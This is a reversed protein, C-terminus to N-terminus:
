CIIQLFFKGREGATTIELAYENNLDPLCSAMQQRKLLEILAKHDRNDMSLKIRLKEHEGFISRVRRMVDAPTTDLKNIFDAAGLEEARKKDAPDGRHSFFIVPITSRQPHAKMKEFLAFGDMRPMTIGTFIADLLAGSEMKEWADQGDVAAIADFGSERFVAAYINRLAEDDEVVMIRKKSSAAPTAAPTPPTEPRITKLTERIEKQFDDNQQLQADMHETYFSIGCFDDVM